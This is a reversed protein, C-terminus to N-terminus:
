KAFKRYLKVAQRETIGSGIVLRARARATEGAKITRGFQALYMSFHGEKQHPTAVAYSDSRPAM